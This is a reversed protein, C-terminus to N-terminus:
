SRQVRGGTKEMKSRRELLKQSVIKPSLNKSKNLSLGAKITAFKTSMLSSKCYYGMHHDTEFDTSYKRECKQDIVCGKMNFLEKKVEVQIASPM